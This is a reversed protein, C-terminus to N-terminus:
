WLSWLESNGGGGQTTFFADMSGDRKDELYPTECFNTLSEFYSLEESLDLVTNEEVAEANESNHKLKKAHNIDEEFQPKYGEMAVEPVWSMEPIKAKEDERRFNKGQQDSLTSSKLGYDSDTKKMFHLNSGLDPQFPNPEIATPKQSNSPTEIPFNLKAKQGRIKQAEADYARAAEEATDFTGLWVRGGKRPDRIQATWRGWPRRRVGKYKNKSKRRGSQGNIESCKISGSDSSLGSKHVSYAILPMVDGNGLRPAEFNADLDAIESRLPKSYDGALRRPLTTLDHDPIIIGGCM